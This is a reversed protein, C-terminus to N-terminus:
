WDSSAGGGGSDGGGFGGFGGGSDNMGGFGGGRPYSGPFSPPFFIPMVGGGRGYRRSAQSRSNLYFVLLVLGLFVLMEVPVAPEQARPRSARSPATGNVGKAALVREGITRAAAILADGYHNERLAPRMERLVTGSYGDPLIPELGYGIELRSKRERPALLLLAGENSKKQGIGWARYLANAVDAIPENELSTLTVFALQVGTRDEIDKCYREIELKSATDIVRAFDSVYGQPKLSTFDYGWAACAAFWAALAARKM